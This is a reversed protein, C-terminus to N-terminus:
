FVLRILSCASQLNKRVLEELMHDRVDGREKRMDLIRITIPSRAGDVLERNIRDLTFYITKRRFPLNVGLLLRIQRFRCRCRDLLALEVEAVCAHMLSLLVFHSSALSLVPSRLLVSISPDIIRRAVKLLLWLAITSLKGTPHLVVPL